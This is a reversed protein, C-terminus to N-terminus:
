GKEFYKCSAVYARNEADTPVCTDRIFRQYSSNNTNRIGRPWHTIHHYFLVVGPCVENLTTHLSALQKSALHERCRASRKGYTVAM